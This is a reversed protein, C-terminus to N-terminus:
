LALSMFPAGRVKSPDLGPQFGIGMVREVKQTNGVVREIRPTNGVVREVM